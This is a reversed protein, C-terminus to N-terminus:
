DDILGKDQLVQLVDLGEEEDSDFIDVGDLMYASLLSDVAKEDQLRLLAKGLMYHVYPNENGGPTNLADRMADCTAPYDGLEYHAEAMSANLWLAAEWQHRPEPLLAYAQRWAALAAAANDEDLLDNGQESLTEVQAYLEDPLEM